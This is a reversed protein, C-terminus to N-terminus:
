NIYYKLKVHRSDKATLNEYPKREGVLLLCKRWYLLMVMADFQFVISSGFWGGGSVTTRGIANNSQETWDLGISGLGVWGLWIWDLGIWNSGIWDLGIWDLGIWNM